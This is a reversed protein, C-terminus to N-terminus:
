NLSQLKKQVEEVVKKQSEIKVKTEEQLKLNTQIDQEAKQIKKKWDEIDQNLNKNKEEARKLEKELDKQTNQQEELQIKTQKRAVTLAYNALMKEAEAYKDSYDSSNVYAGGLDIWITATTNDNGESFKMYMDVTNAGGITGVTANDSFYEDNKKDRKYDGKFQKAFDKWVKEAFKANAKPLNISLGNKSGQSMTSEKEVVLSKPAAMTEPTKATVQAMLVSPTVLVLLCF